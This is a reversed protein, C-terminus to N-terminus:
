QKEERNKIEITYDKYFRYYFERTISELSTYERVEKLYERTFKMFFDMGIDDVARRYILNPLEERLFYNEMYQEPSYIFEKKVRLNDDLLISQYYIFFDKVWDIYNTYTNRRFDKVLLKNKIVFEIIARMDLKAKCIARILIQPIINERDDSFDLDSKLLEENSYEFNSNFGRKDCELINNTTTLFIANAEKIFRKKYDGKRTYALHMGVLLMKTAEIAITLRYRIISHNSNLIRHMRYVMDEIFERYNNTHRQKYINCALDRKLYMKSYIKLFDEMLAM